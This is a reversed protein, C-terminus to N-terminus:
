HNFNKNYWVTAKRTAEELNKARGILTSNKSKNLVSYVVMGEEAEYNITSHKGDQIFASLNYTNNNNEIETLQAPPLERYPKPAVPLFASEATLSNEYTIRTELAKKHVATIQLQQNSTLDEQLLIIEIEELGQNTSYYETQAERLAAFSKYAEPQGKYAKYVQTALEMKQKLVLTHVISDFGHYRCYAPLEAQCKPHASM